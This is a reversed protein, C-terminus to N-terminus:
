TSVDSESEKARTDENHVEGPQDAQEKLSRKYREHNAEYHPDRPASRVLVDQGPEDLPDLPCWSPRRVFPLEDASVKRGEPTKPHMCYFPKGHLHRKEVDRYRHVACLCTDCSEATDVVDRSVEGPQDAQEALEPHLKKDFAKWAVPRQDEPIFEALAKFGEWMRATYTCGEEFQQQLATLKQELLLVEARLEGVSKIDVPVPLTPFVHKLFYTKVHSPLVPGALGGESPDYGVIAILKHWDFAIGKGDPLRLRVGGRSGVKYSYEVGDVHIARSM